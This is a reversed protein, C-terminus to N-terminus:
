LGYYRLFAGAQVTDAAELADVGALLGIDLARSVSYGIVANLRVYDAGVVSTDYDKIEVEALLTDAQVFLAPSAQYLLGIPVSLFIPKLEYGAYDTPGHLAVTL